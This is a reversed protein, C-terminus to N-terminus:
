CDAVDSREILLVPYLHCMKACLQCNSIGPIICVLVLAVCSVLYEVEDFAM